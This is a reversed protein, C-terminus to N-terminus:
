EFLVPGVQGQDGVGEDGGGDGGSYGTVVVRNKLQGSDGVAAGVFVGRKGAGDTDAGGGQRGDDGVDGFGAGVLADGRKENNVCVTAVCDQGVNSLLGVDVPRETNAEVGAAFIPGFGPDCRADAAGVVGVHVGAFEFSGNQQGRVGVIHAAAPVGAVVACGITAIQGRDADAGVGMGADNALWRLCRFFFSQTGKAVEAGCGSGQDTQECRCVVLVHATIAGTRQRERGGGRVSCASGGGGLLDESVLGRFPETLVKQVAILLMTQLQRADECIESRDM